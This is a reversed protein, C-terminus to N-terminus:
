CSYEKGGTCRRWTGQNLWGSRYIATLWNWGGLRKSGTCGKWQIKCGRTLIDLMYDDDHLLVAREVFVKAGIGPRISDWHLVTDRSDTDGVGGRICTYFRIMVGSIDVGTTRM